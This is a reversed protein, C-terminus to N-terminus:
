KLRRDLNEPTNRSVVFRNNGGLRMATKHIRGLYDRATPESVERIATFCLGEITNVAQSVEESARLIELDKEKILKLLTDRGLELESTRERVKGELLVNLNKKKRYNKLLFVFFAFIFVALFGTLLIVIKQHAIVRENLMLLEDQAAMKYRNERELFQSEVKMLSTTLAENYISDKLAIYKQQYLAAREFAGVSLFLESLRAYIKIVELNFPIGQGITREAEELLRVAKDVLKREAYIDALLYINDLQMRIDGSRKAFGYSGLFEIEASDYKKLGHFISGAAYRLHIMSAQDCSFGCIRISKQLFTQASSFKGMQVYCLSINMPTAYHETGLIKQMEFSRELYDVASNYDRLKYYSIGINELSMAIGSSHENQMAIEYSNFFCSLAKDFRSQFMYACGATNTILMREEALGLRGAIPYAYETVKLAEEVRGLRSLVQGEVRKVKVLWLSDLSLLAEEGAKQIIHLAKANDVDVNQKALSYLSDLQRSQGQLDMSILLGFLVALVKKVM